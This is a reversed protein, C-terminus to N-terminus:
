TSSKIQLLFLIHLYIQALKGRTQIADQLSKEIRLANPIDNALIFDNAIYDLEKVIDISKLWHMEVTALQQNYNNM